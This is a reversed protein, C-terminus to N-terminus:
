HFASCVKKEAEDLGEKDAWGMKRAVREFLRCTDNNM